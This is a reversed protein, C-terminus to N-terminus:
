SAPSPGLWNKMLAYNALPLLAMALLLVTLALSELGQVGWLVAGCALARGLGLPVERLFLADARRHKFRRSSEVIAIQAAFLPVNFVSMAVAMGLGYLLVLVYSRDVALPLSLAAVALASWFLFGRRREPHGLRAVLASAAFGALAVLAAYAGSHGEGGGSDYSILLPLLMSGVSMVGMLAASLLGANWGQPKRTKLLRLLAGASHQTRGVLPLSVVWAAVFLLLGAGFIWPYGGTGEFRTLFFGALPAGTFSAFFYAAQNSGLLTDRDRGEKSLDVMLLVWAQWYLGVGLGWWLGLAGAHAGAREGLALIVAQFVAYVFLGSRLSAGAGRRRTLVAGLWFGFPISIYTCFAHWAPLAYGHGLRFLYVGVFLTGIQVAQWHLAHVLLGRKAQPPLHSWPLQLKM